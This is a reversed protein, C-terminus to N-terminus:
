KSKLAKYVQKDKELNLQPNTSYMDNVIESETPDEFGLNMLRNRAKEIEINMQVKRTYWEALVRLAHKKGVNGVTAVTGAGAAGAMGEWSLLNQGAYHIADWVCDFFSSAVNDFKRSLTAEQELLQTCFTVQDKSKFMMNALKFEPKCATKRLDEAQQKVLLYQAKATPGIYCMAVVFLLFLCTNLQSQTRDSHVRFLADWKADKSLEAKGEEGKLQLRKPPGLTKTENAVDDPWEYIFRLLVSWLKLVCEEAGMEMGEIIVKKNQQDFQFDIQKYEGNEEDSL